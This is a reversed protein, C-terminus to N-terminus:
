SRKPKEFERVLPNSMADAYARQHSMGEIYRSCVYANAFTFSWGNDRQVELTLQKISKGM